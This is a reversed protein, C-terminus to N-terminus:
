QTIECLNMSQNDKVTRKWSSKELQNTARLSSNSDSLRIEKLM